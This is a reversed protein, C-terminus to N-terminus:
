TCLPRRVIVGGDILNTPLSHKFMTYSVITKSDFYRVKKTERKSNRDYIVIDWSTLRYKSHPRIGIRYETKEDAFM